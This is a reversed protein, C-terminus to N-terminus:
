KRSSSSLVRASYSVFALSNHEGREVLVLLSDSLMKNDLLVLNSALSALAAEIRVRNSKILRLLANESQKVWSSALSYTYDNKLTGTLFGPIVLPSMKLTFVFMVFPVIVDGLCCSLWLVSLTGLKNWNVFEAPRITTGGATGGVGGGITDWDVCTCDGVSGKEADAEWIYWYEFLLDCM